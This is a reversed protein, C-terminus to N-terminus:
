LPVRMVIANERGWRAPYYGRRSGIAAFGYRQYLRLADSFNGDTWPFPYVKRELALVDAIRTPDLPVFREPNPSVRANM